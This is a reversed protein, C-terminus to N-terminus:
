FFLEKSSVNNIKMPLIQIYKTNDNVVKNTYKMTIYTEDVKILYKSSISTSEHLQTSIKNNRWLRINVSKNSYHSVCGEYTDYDYVNPVM